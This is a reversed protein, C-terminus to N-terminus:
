QQQSKKETESFRQILKRWSSASAGCRRSRGSRGFSCCMGSRTKKSFSLKNGEDIEAEAVIRASYGIATIADAIKEGALTPHHDVAILGQRYDISIDVVEDHGILVERIRMIYSSFSLKEVQIFSRMLDGAFASSSANFLFLSLLVATVIIVKQKM